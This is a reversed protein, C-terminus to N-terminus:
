INELFAGWRTAMKGKTSPDPDYYADVDWRDPPVETIADVGDCLLRWFSAANTVGGPFRCGIGVIAISETRANEMADLRAQLKKIAILASKATLVDNPKM